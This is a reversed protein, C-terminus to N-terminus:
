SCDNSKIPRHLGTRFTMPLGRHCIDITSLLQDERQGTERNSGKSKGLLM